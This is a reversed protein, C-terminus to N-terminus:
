HFSTMLKAVKLKFDSNESLIQLRDKSLTLTVTGIELVANQRGIPLIRLGKALEVCFYPTLGLQNECNKCVEYYQGKQLSCLFLFFYIKILTPHNWKGVKNM